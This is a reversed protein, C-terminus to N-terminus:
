LPLSYTYSMTMLDHLVINLTTYLTPSFFNHLHMFTRAQISGMVVCISYMYIKFSKLCIIDVHIQYMHWNTGCTAEPLLPKLSIYHCCPKVIYTM